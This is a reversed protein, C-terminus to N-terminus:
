LEIIYMQMSHSTFQHIYTSIQVTSLSDRLTFWASTCRNYFDGDVDVTAAAHASVSSHRRHVEQM